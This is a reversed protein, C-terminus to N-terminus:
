SRRVGESHQDRSLYRGRKGQALSGEELLFEAFSRLDFCVLNLLLARHNILCTGENKNFSSEKLIRETRQKMLRRNIRLSKRLERYPAMQLMMSPQLLSSQPLISLPMQSYVM